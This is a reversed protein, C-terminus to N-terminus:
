LQEQIPIFVSIDGRAALKPKSALAPFHSVRHVLKGMNRPMKKAAIIKVKIAPVGMVTDMRLYPNQFKGDRLCCTSHFLSSESPRKFNINVM